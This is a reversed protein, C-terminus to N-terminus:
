GSEIREPGDREIGGRLAVRKVTIRLASGAIDSAFITHNLPGSPLFRVAPDGTGLQHRPDEM